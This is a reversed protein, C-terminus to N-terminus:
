IGYKKMKRYLTSVDIGLAKATLKRSGDYRGLARIIKEKESTEIVPDKEESASFSSAELCDELRATRRDTLVSLRNAFNEIERVNGKWPISILYNMAKEDLMTVITGKEIHNHRLFYDFYVPVDELRERVPPIVIKLVELRYLLDARFRGAEVEKSLNKNTAAIVRVDLPTVSDSGLRMIEREQLVRLLRAQLFFPIDGIEDLFITGGDALEFLGIKGGKRAGTFAGEVYGFLESELLSEPISACNIAVFPGDKRRSEGHISQAFLEKGSGTEAEILINEDAKAFRKALRITRRMKESRGLIDNFCYRVSFGKPNLRMRIKDSMERLTEIPEFSVIVEGSSSANETPIVNLSMLQDNIFFVDGILGEPLSIIKDMDLPTLVDQLMEGVVSRGLITESYENAMIIRGTKTSILIGQRSYKLVLELNERRSKERLMMANARMAEDVALEVAEKGSELLICPFGFRTSADFVSHGGLIIDVTDREIADSIIKELFDPREISYTVFTVDPFVDRVAVSGRVMSPNGIMAIKRAGYDSYAKRVSKLVDYGTVTLEVSMVKYDKLLEWTFGRSIFITDDRSNEILEELHGSHWNIIHYRIEGRDSRHCIVSDIVDQLEPYPSLFTIDTM